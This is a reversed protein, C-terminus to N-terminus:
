LASSSRAAVAPPLATAGELVLYVVGADRDRM